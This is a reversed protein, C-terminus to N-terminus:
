ILIKKIENSVDQGDLLTHELFIIPHYQKLINKMGNLVRLTNGEVDIKVFDLRNNLEYNTWFDDFTTTTIEINHFPLEYNDPFITLSHGGDNYPNIYLSTKGARDSLAIEFPKINSIKNVSINKELEHFNNPEPEFAIVLGKNGVISYALLSYYGINAGVDVFTMNPRLYKKMARYLRDGSLRAFYISRQTPKMLDLNLEYRGLFLKRLRYEDTYNVNTNLGLVKLVFRNINLGAIIKLIIRLIVETTYFRTFYYVIKLTLKKM